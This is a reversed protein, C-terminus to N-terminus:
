LLGCPFGTAQAHDLRRQHDLRCAVMMTKSYCQTFSVASFMEAQPIM